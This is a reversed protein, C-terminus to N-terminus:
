GGCAGCCGGARHGKRKEPFGARALVTGLEQPSTRAQDFQVAVTDQGSAADATAVGPVARLLDLVRAAGALDLITALQLQHHSMIKGKCVDACWQAVMM